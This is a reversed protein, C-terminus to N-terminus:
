LVLAHLFWIQCFCKEAQATSNRVDPAGIVFRWTRRVVSQAAMGGRRWKIGALFLFRKGGEWLPLLERHLFNLDGNLFELLETRPVCIRFQHRSTAFRIEAEPKASAAAWSWNGPKRQKTIGQRCESFPWSLFPFFYNAQFMTVNLNESTTESLIANLFYVDWSGPLCQLVASLPECSFPRPGCQSCEVGMCVCVCVHVCGGVCVCMCACVCVSVCLCLCVCMCVCTCMCKRTSLFLSLCTCKSGWFLQNQKWVAITFPSPSDMERGESTWWGTEAFLVVATLSSSM